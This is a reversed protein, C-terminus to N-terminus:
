RLPIKKAAHQKLKVKFTAISQCKINRPITNYYKQARYKFPNLPQFDFNTYLNTM